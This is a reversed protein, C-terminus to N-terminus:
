VSGALMPALTIAHKIINSLVVIALSDAAQTALGFIDHILQLGLEQFRYGM